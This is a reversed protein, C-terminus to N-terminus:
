KSTKKTALLPFCCKLSLSFTKLRDLEAVEAFCGNRAVSFFVHLKVATCLKIIFFTIKELSIITPYSNALEKYM